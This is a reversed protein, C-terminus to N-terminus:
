DVELTAQSLQGELVEMLKEELQKNQWAVRALKEDVLRKAEEQLEHNHEEQARAEM